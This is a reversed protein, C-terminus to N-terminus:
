AAKRKARVRQRKKQYAAKQKEVDKKPVSLLVRTAERFRVFEESVTKTRTKTPM